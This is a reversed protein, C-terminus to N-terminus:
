VLLANFILQAKLLNVEIGWHVNDYTMQSGEDPHDIVLRATMNYVDVYNVEGCQGDDMFKRMGLNYDKVIEPQEDGFWGKM